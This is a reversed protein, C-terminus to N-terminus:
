SIIYRSHLCTGSARFRLAFIQDTLVVLIGVAVYGALVAAAIRVM